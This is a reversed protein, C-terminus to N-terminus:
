DSFGVFTIKKILQIGGMPKKEIDFKYQLSDMERKFEVILYSDTKELIRTENAFHENGIRIITQDTACCNLFGGQIDNKFNCRYCM